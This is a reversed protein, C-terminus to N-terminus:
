LLAIEILLATGFIASALGSQGRRISAGSVKLSLGSAADRMGSDIRPGELKPHSPRLLQRRNKANHGFGAQSGEAVM